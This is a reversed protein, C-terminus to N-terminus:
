LRTGLTLRLVHAATYNAHGDCGLRIFGAGLDLTGTLGYGRFVPEGRDAAGSRTFADLTLRRGAVPGRWVLHTVRQGTGLRDDRIQFVMVVAGTPRTHTLGMLVSDNPDFNLNVYPRVNTRGIGLMPAWGSGAEARGDWTLSGGAFGGSALQLSGMLKGWAGLPMGSELGARLQRFADPAKYDGLWFTYRETNGRLNIDTAWGQANDRYRSVAAKWAVTQRDRLPDSPDVDARDEIAAAPTCFLLVFIM